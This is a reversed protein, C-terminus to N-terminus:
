LYPWWYDDTPTRQHLGRMKDRLGQANLILPIAMQVASLYTFVEEPFVTGRGLYSTVLM